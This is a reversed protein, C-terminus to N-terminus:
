TTATHRRATHRRRRQRYLRDNGGLGRIVDVGALGPEHRRGRDRRARRQRPPGPRSAPRVSSSPASTPTPRGPAPRRAGRADSHMRRGRHPMGWPRTTWVTRLAVTPIFGGNAGLRGGGTEPDIHRIPARSRRGLPRGPAAGRVFSGFINHGNSFALPEPPGTRATTGATAGGIDFSYEASDNGAVISDSISVTSSAIGSGVM